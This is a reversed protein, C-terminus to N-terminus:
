EHRRIRHELRNLGALVALVLVSAGVALVYREMGACAGIAATALISGATTLGKVRDDKGGSVITGAGLFAVGTTIAIVLHMPDFRIREDDLDQVMRVMPEALSVILAASVAVLIHTRLGAPRNARERDWGLPLALVAAVILRLLMQLDALVVDLM